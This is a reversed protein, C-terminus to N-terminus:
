SLAPSGDTGLAERLTAVSRRMHSKVTGLPLGTQESIEQHTLDRYFSLSVLQRRLSDLGELAAKLRSGYTYPTM